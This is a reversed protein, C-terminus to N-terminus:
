GPLNAEVAKVVEDSMPSIASEFRAVVQGEPNVLFKTFNWKIEGAMATPTDETLTRYLPAKADGATEVKAFMPFEVNFKEDVFTAIEANSGPEQGGYDNSPFALVELGKGQYTAYLKQLEAYQPTYGCESATNVILLAKGRYDALSVKKGDITEVEHDIVPGSAQENGAGDSAQADPSPEKACALTSTALGAFVVALLARRLM